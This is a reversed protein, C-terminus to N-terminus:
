ERLAAERPYGGLEKHQRGRRHVPGGLVRFGRPRPPHRHAERHRQQHELEPACNPEASPALSHPGRGPKLTPKLSRPSPQLFQRQTPAKEREYYDRADGYKSVLAETTFNGAATPLKKMTVVFPHIGHNSQARAGEAVNNYSKITCAPPSLLVSQVFEHAEHKPGDENAVAKRKGLQADNLLSPSLDVAEENAKVMMGDDMALM